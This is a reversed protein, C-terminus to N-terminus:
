DVKWAAFAIIAGIIIGAVGAVIGLSGMFSSDMLAYGTVIAGVAAIISGLVTGYVRYGRAM